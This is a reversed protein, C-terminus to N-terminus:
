AYVHLSHGEAHFVYYPRTVKLRRTKRAGLKLKSFIVPIKEVTYVFVTVFKLHKGLKGNSISLRNTTSNEYSIM